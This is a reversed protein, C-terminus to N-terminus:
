KLNLQSTEYISSYGAISYGGTVLTSKPSSGNVCYGASTPRPISVSWSTGNYVETDNSISVSSGAIKIHGCSVICHSLNGSASTGFRGVLLVNSTPMSWATGNYVMIKDHYTTTSSIQSNSDKGGVTLGGDLNGAGVGYRREWPTKPGSAWSSGNYMESTLQSNVRDSGSNICAASVSGFAAGEVRKTLLSSSLVTWTNSKYEEISSYASSNKEGGAIIGASVTGFAMHKNVTKSSKNVTTWVSGNYYSSNAYGNYIMADTTGFGVPNMESLNVDGKSIWHDFEAENTPNELTDMHTLVLTNIEDLTTKTAVPDIVIGLHISQELLDISNQLAKFSLKKDM